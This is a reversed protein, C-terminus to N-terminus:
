RSASGALAEVGELCFIWIWLFPVCLVYSGRRMNRDIDWGLYTYLPVIAAPLVVRPHTATRLPFGPFYASDMAYSGVGM